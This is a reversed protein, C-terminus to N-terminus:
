TKRKWRPKISAIFYLSTWTKQNEKKYSWGMTRAGSTSFIIRGGHFQRLVKTSVWETHAQPRNIETEPVKLGRRLWDM